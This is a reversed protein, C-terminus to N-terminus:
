YVPMSVFSYIFYTYMDDTFTTIYPQCQLQVAGCQGTTSLMHVEHWSSSPFGYNIRPLTFINWGPITAMLHTFLDNNLFILVRLEKGGHCGRREGTIHLDVHKESGENGARKEEKLWAAKVVECMCHIYSHCSIKMLKLSDIGILCWISIRKGRPKSQGGEREREGKEHTTRERKM